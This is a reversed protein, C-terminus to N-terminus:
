GNNGGAREARIRSIMKRMQRETEGIADGFFNEPWNKIRGYEDVELRTLKAAPEEREVYYLACDTSALKEAAVLYQLRRFLHESHTEILIQLNRAQGVEVFMDALAAQALPHLHAEPDEILLVSGAPAFQLLVIIPLVQSVGYGVDILNDTHGNRTIELQYMFSRGIRSIELADALGLRSLWASVAQRLEGVSQGAEAALLAQVAGTGLPGLRSPVQQEWIVERQPPPRLPGLYHFNELTDRINAMADRVRPGLTSGLASLAPEPFEIGRTPRYETRADEFNPGLSKAMIPGIKGASIRYLGDGETLSVVRGNKVEYSVRHVVPTGGELRFVAAFKAAPEGLTLGFGLHSRTNQDRVIRDFSGCDLGDRQDGRLLLQTSPDAALATQRLIRLGQFITTKGASNRGLVATLAGLQIGPGWHEDGWNKFNRLHIKQIKLAM